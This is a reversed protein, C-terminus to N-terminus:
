FRSISLERSDLVKRISEPYQYLENKPNISKSSKCYLYSTYMLKHFVVSFDSILFTADFLKGGWSGYESYSLRKQHM